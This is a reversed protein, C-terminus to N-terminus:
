LATSIALRTRIDPLTLDPERELLRSVLATVFPAAFSSSIGVGAAMLAAPTVRCEVACDPHFAIEDEQDRRGLGVSLVNDFVAPFARGRAAAVIITGARVSVECARYLEDRASVEITGLSLNVVRIGKTVCWALAQAIITPSTELRDGFVRVPIVRVTPARELLIRACLTGHGHRDHDDCHQFPELDRRPHVMAVGAVVRPDQKMRDWGSDIM